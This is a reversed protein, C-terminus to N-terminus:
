VTNTMTGAGTSLTAWTEPATGGGVQVRYASLHPDSVTGQIEVILTLPDQPQPYNIVVQPPVTDIEVYREYRQQNGCADTFLLVMGYLGDPVVTGSDDRGNWTSAGSGGLLTKGTELHRRVGGAIHREGNSDEFAASITIDLSVPEYTQYLLTVEDAIGDGNPSFLASGLIPP